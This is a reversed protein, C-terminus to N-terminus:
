LKTPDSMGAFDGYWQLVFSDVDPLPINNIQQDFVSQNNLDLGDFFEQWNMARLQHGVHVEPSCRSTKQDVKINLGYEM